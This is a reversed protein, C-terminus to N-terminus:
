PEISADPPYTDQLAALLGTEEPHVATAHFRHTRRNQYEKPAGAKCGTTDSSRHNPHQAHREGGSRPSPPRAFREGGVPSPLRVAVPLRIAVPM